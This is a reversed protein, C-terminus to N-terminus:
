RSAAPESTVFARCRPAAPQRWVVHSTQEAQVADTDYILSQNRGYHLCRICRRLETALDGHFGHRRPKSCLDSM